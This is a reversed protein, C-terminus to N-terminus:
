RMNRIPKMAIDGLSKELNALLENVQSRKYSEMQLAAILRQREEECTDTNQQYITPNVKEIAQAQRVIELASTTKLTV